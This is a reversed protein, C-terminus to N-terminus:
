LFEALYEAKLQEIEGSERMAEIISAIQPILAQHKKHLYHYLHRKIFPPQLLKINKFQLKNIAVQGELSSTIAIDIHGGALLLFLQKNSVVLQRKMERTYQEAFKTGRRLGIIYTSLGSKEDPALTGSRIFMSGELINIPVPIRRLNTYKGSIGAIRNVEGDLQGSNASVLSRAAPQQLVQTQIGLRRYARNLIRASLEALPDDPSSFVLTAPQPRDTIQRAFVIDATLLNLLLCCLLPKSM